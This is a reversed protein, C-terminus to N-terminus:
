KVETTKKTLCNKVRFLSLIRRYFQQKAPYYFPCKDGNNYQMYPCMASHSDLKYSEAGTKCSSCIDKKNPM